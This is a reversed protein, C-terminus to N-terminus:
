IIKAEEQDAGIRAVWRSLHRLSLRELVKINFRLEVYRAVRGLCGERNEKPDGIADIGLMQLIRLMQQLIKEVAVRPPWNAASGNAQTDISVTVLKDFHGERAVAEWGDRLETTRHEGNGYSRRAGRVRDDERGLNRCC